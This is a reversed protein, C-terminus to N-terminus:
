PSKVSETARECSAKGRELFEIEVTVSDGTPPKNGTVSWKGAANTTTTGILFGTDPPGHWVKVTRGALCNKALVRRRTRERKTKGKAAPRTTLKGSYTATSPGIPTITVTTDSFISVNKDALAPQAALLLLACVGVLAGIGTKMTEGRVFTRIDL